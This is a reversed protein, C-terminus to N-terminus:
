SLTDTTGTKFLARNYMVPALSYNFGLKNISSGQPKITYFKGNYIIAEPLYKFNQIPTQNSIILMKFFCTLIGVFRVVEQLRNM